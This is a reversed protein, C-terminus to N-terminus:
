ATKHRLVARALRRDHASPVTTRETAKAANKLMARSSPSEAAKVVYAGERRVQINKSVKV